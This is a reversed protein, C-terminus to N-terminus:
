NLAQPRLAQDDLGPVLSHRPFSVVASFVGLRRQYTGNADKQSKPGASPKHSPAFSDITFSRNKIIAYKTM